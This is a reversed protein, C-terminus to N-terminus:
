SIPFSAQRASSFSDSLWCIVARNRVRTRSCHCYFFCQNVTLSAWTSCHWHLLLHREKVPTQINVEVKMDLNVFERQLRTNHTHYDRGTRWFWVLHDVTSATIVTFYRYRRPLPSFCGEALGPCWTNCAEWPQCRSKFCNLVQVKCVASPLCLHGRLQQEM